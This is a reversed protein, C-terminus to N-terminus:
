TRDWENRAADLYAEVDVGQWVEAGVGELDLIDLPQSDDNEALDDAMRALLKLRDARTLPKIQQQYLQEIDISTM